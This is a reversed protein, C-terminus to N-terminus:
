VFSSFYSFIFFSITFFFILHTIKSIQQLNLGFKKQHAVVKRQCAEKWEPTGYSPDYKRLRMEWLSGM